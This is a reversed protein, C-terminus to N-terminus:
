PKMREMILRSRMWGLKGNKRTYCSMAVIMPDISYRFPDARGGGGIAILGGNSVMVQLAHRLSRELSPYLKTGDEM